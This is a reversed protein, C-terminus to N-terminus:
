GEVETTGHYDRQNRSSSNDISGGALSVPMQVDVISYTFNNTSTSEVAFGISSGDQITNFTGIM